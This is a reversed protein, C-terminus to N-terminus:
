FTIKTGENQSFESYRENMNNLVVVTQLRDSNSWINFPLGTARSYVIYVGIATHLRFNFLFRKLDITWIRYTNM